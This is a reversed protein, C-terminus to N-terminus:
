HACRCDRFGQDTKPHDATGLPSGCYYTIVARRIPGESYRPEDKRAQDAFWLLKEWCARMLQDITIVEVRGDLDLNFGPHDTGFYRKPSPYFRQLIQEIPTQEGRGIAELRGKQARRGMVIEPWRDQPDRKRTHVAKIEMDSAVTASKTDPDLRIPFMRLRRLPPIHLANRYFQNM